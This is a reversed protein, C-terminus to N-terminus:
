HQLPSAYVLVLKKDKFVKEARQFLNGLKPSGDILFPKGQDYLVNANGSQTQHSTSSADGYDDAHIEDVHIKALDYKSAGLFPHNKLLLEPM